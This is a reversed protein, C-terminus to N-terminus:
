GFGSNLLCPTRKFSTVQTVCRICCYIYTVLGLSAYIYVLRELRRGGVPSQEAQPQMGPTLSLLAHLVCNGVKVAPYFVQRAIDDMEDIGRFIAAACSAKVRRKQPDTDSKKHFSKSVIYCDVTAPCRPGLIISLIWLGHGAQGLRAPWLHLAHAEV